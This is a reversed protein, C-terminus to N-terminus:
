TSSVGPLNMLNQEVEGVVGRVSDEKAIFSAFNRLKFSKEPEHGMQKAIYSIMLDLTELESAEAYLEESFRTEYMRNNSIWTTVNPHLAAFGSTDAAQLSLVLYIWVIWYTHDWDEVLVDWNLPLPEEQDESILSELKLSWDLYNKRLWEFASQISLFMASTIQLHLSIPPLATNLLNLQRDRYESALEQNYNQPQASTTTLLLSLTSKTQAQSIM